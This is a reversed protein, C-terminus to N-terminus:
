LFTQLSQRQRVVIQAHKRESFRIMLSQSGNKTLVEVLRIALGPQLFRQRCKWATRSKQVRAGALQLIAPVTPMEIVDRLVETLVL